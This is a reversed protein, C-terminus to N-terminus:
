SAPPRSGFQTVGDRVRGLRDGPGRGGYSMYSEDNTNTIRSKVKDWINYTRTGHMGHNKNLQSILELSYCGCSIVKGDVLSDMRTKVKTNGCSCDCIAFTRKNERLQDVIELRGFVEGKRNKM